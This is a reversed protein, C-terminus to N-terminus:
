KGRYTISVAKLGPVLSMRSHCPLVCVTVIASSPKSYAPFAYEESVLIACAIVPACQDPGRNKPKTKPKTM